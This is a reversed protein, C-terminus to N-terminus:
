AFLFDSNSLSALQVGILTIASTTTGDNYFLTTSNYGLNGADWENTTFDSFSHIAAVATFDMKENAVDFSHITDSGWASATYVYRDMGTEGILTDNGLGGTLIDDGAGGAIYDNAIGGTLVDNGGWGYLYTNVTNGAGNLVDNGLVSGQVWEISATALDLTLGTDSWVFLSDFGDGGDIVSDGGLEILTDDGGQGRMIDSGANGMLMDAGDGGLLTDVGDGGDLYDGFASGRLTDNGAMGYIYVASTQSTADFVDTGANGQAWEISAVGMDLTVAAATQVLASDFGAGGSIDTDAADILLSDNGDGGFLRDAGLGGVLVDNGANGTLVDAGDFGYLQDPGAGGTLHNVGSDGILTNPGSGGTLNEISNFHDAMFYDVKAYGATLDAYVVGTREAYSATDVGNGGWLENVGFGGTLVDDGNGGEIHDNGIGGDITDNGDNGYLNNALDNGIIVDNGSGAILTGIESRTDGHYLLSNYVNGQAQYEPTGAPAASNLDALQESSFRLWQGPRLDDHQDQNFNSLDYTTDAGKTWVTTFIKNTLTTGTNPAVQGNIYQQGTTENWTYTDRDAARIDTKGKSLDAGYMEQLAAIDYMMYGSVSSGDPATTNANVSVEGSLFASYTMVTFEIDNRSASIAGNPYVEFPHKLGLAHGIEHIITAFTDNGFLQASAPEGNTGLFVDGASNAIAGQYNYPFNAHSGGENGPLSTAGAIRISADPTASPDFTIGTYYTILNFGIRAGDQQFTTTPKFAALGSPDQYNTPYQSALTPFFYTLAEAPMTGAADKTWYENSLLARVNSDLITYSAFTGAYNGGKTVAPDSTAM